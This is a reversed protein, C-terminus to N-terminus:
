SGCREAERREWENPLVHGKPPSLQMKYSHNAQTNNESGKLLFSVYLAEHSIM